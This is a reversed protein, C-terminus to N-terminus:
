RPTHRWVISDCILKGFFMFSRQLLMLQASTGDTHVNLVLFAWINAYYLKEIVIHLLVFELKADRWSDQLLAQHAFILLQLFLAFKLM